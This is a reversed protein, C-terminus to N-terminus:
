AKGFIERKCGKRAPKTLTITRGAGPLIVKGTQELNVSVVDSLAYLIKSCDSKKALCATAIDEVLGVEATTRRRKTTCTAAAAKKMPTISKGAPNLVAAQQMSTISARGLKAVMTNTAPTMPDISKCSKKSVTAKKAPFSSKGDCKAAKAPTAKKTTTRKRGQQDVTTSSAETMPLPAVPVPLPPIVKDLYVSIQAYVERRCRPCTKPVALANWHSAVGLAYYWGGAACHPPPAVLAVGVRAMVGAYCHPCTMPISVSM